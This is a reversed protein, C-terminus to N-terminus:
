QANLPNIKSLYLDFHKKFTNTFNDINFDDINISFVCDTYQFGDFCIAVLIPEKSKFRLSILVVPMFMSSRFVHKRYNPLVDLFYSNLEEKFIERLTDKTKLYEDSPIVSYPLLINSKSQSESKETQIFYKSYDLPYDWVSNTFDIDEKFGNFISFVKQINKILTGSTMYTIQDHVDYITKDKKILLKFHKFTLYSYNYTNFHEIKSDVGFIFDCLTKVFNIYSSFNFHMPLLKYTDLLYDPTETTTFLEHYMIKYQEFTLISSIDTPESDPIPVVSNKLKNKTSYTVRNNFTYVDDEVKLGSLKEQLLSLVNDDLVSLTDSASDEIENKNEVETKNEFETKNELISMDFTDSEIITESVIPVIKIEDKSIVSNANITNYNLGYFHSEVSALVPVVILDLFESHTKIFDLKKNSSSILYTQYKNEILVGFKGVSVFIDAHNVFLKDLRIAVEEFIPKMSEMEAILSSDEFRISKELIADVKLRATGTSNGYFYTDM